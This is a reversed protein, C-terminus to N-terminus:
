QTVRGPGILRVGSGFSFGRYTTPSAGASYPFAGIDGGNSSAGIAPSGATLNFDGGAARNVFGVYSETASYKGHAEYATGIASGSQLEAFTVYGGGSTHFVVTLDDESTRYINYDLDLSNPLTAENFLLIEWDGAGTRAHDFINNKITIDGLVFGSPSSFYVGKEGYITNYTFSVTQTNTAGTPRGRNLFLVPNDPSYNFLNSFVSASPGETIHICSTGGGEGTEGTFTNKFIRIGSTQMEAATRRLFVGDVHPWGTLGAWTTQSFTHYNSLTNFCFDLNSVAGGAARSNIDIGWIINSTFVNNSILVSHTFGYINDSKIGLPYTVRSCYNDSFNVNICNEFAAAGGVPTDSNFNTLNRWEGIEVFDCGRIVLNSSGNFTEFDIGVGTKSALPGVGAPAEEAYGGIETFLLNTIVIWQRAAPAQFGAIPTPANTFNFVGKGTGWTGDKNGVYTIPSGSTGSWDFDVRGFYNVGGKFIVIDGASLTTSAATGTANNDGPCHKFATGTSTGANSNNGGVFDVYYTAAQVGFALMWACSTLIFKKM